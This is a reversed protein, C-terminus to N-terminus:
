RKLLLKAIKDGSLFVTPFRDLSGPSDVVLLDLVIETKEADVILPDCEMM